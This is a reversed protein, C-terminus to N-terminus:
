ILDAVDASIRHPCRHPVRSRDRLAARGGEDFRDLWKYGSKHSINYRECLETMTYLGHRHDACTRGRTIDGALAHGVEKFTLWALM